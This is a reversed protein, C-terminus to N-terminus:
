KNKFKKVFVVKIWFIIRVEEVTKNVYSIWEDSKTNLFFILLNNVFGMIIIKKKKTEIINKKKVLFYFSM